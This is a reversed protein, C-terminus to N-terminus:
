QTYTGTLFMDLVREKVKPKILVEGYNEVFGLRRQRQVLIALPNHQLLFWVYQVLCQCFTKVSVWVLMLRLELISLFLMSTHPVETCPYSSPQTSAPLLCVTDSVSLVDECVGLGADAPARSCVFFSM